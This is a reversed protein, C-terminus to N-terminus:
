AARTPYQTWTRLTLGPPAFTIKPEARTNRWRIYANIAANQEDDTRYSMSMVCAIDVIDSM